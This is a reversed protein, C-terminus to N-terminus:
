EVWQARVLPSVFFADGAPKRGVFVTLQAGQFGYGQSTGYM